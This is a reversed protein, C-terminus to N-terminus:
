LERPTVAIQRPIDMAEHLLRLLNIRNAENDVTFALMHRPSHIRRSAPGIRFRAHRIHFLALDVSEVAVRSVGPRYPNEAVMAIAAEILASYRNGVDIGFRYESEDLCEDLDDLYTEAFGIRWSM